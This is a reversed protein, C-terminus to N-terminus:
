RRRVTDRHSEGALHKNPHKGEEYELLALNAIDALLDDNGTTVYERARKAISELRDYTPKGPANLRGYRYAGVILRNRMLREFRPSWETRALEAADFREPEGIPLEPMGAAWRWLNAIFDVRTNM